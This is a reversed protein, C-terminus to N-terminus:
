PLFDRAKVQPNAKPEYTARAGTFHDSAQLILHTRKDVWLTLRVVGHSGLDLVTCPRGSVSELARLTIEEYQKSMSSLGFKGPMLLAPVLMAEFGSTPSMTSLGNSIPRQDTGMSGDASVMRIWSHRGDSWALYKEYVKGKDLASVEFRFLGPREFRTLFKATAFMFGKGPSTMTGEDVYSGLLRYRDEVIKLLAIAASNPRTSKPLPSPAAPKDGKRYFVMRVPRDVSGFRDLALHNGEIRLTMTYTRTGSDRKYGDDFLYKETGKLVLKTGAKTELM